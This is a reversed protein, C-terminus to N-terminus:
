LNEKTDAFIFRYINHYKNLEMYHLVDSKRINKGILDDVEYIHNLHYYKKTDLNYCWCSANYKKHM